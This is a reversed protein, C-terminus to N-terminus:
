APAPGEKKEPPPTKRMLLVAMVLAAIGIV